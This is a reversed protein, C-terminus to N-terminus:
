VNSRDMLYVAGPSSTIDKDIRFLAPGNLRISNYTNTLRIQTGDYYYDNWTTGGDFSVQVDAYEGAGFGVIHVTVPHDTDTVYFPITQGAGTQPAILTRSPM